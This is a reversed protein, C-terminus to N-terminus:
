ENVTGYQVTFQASFKMPFKLGLPLCLQLTLPNHPVFRFASATMIRYGSCQVILM